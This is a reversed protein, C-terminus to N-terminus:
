SVALAVSVLLAHIGQQKNRHSERDGSHRGSAPAASRPNAAVEAVEAIEARTGDEETKKRTRGHEKTAEFSLPM